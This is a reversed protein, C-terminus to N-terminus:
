LRVRKGVPNNVEDQSSSSDEEADVGTNGTFDYQFSPAVMSPAWSTHAPAAVRLEGEPISGMNMELNRRKPAAMDDSDDNTSSEEDNRETVALSKSMTASADNNAAFAATKRTRFAHAVKDRAVNEKVEIWGAGEQKLFRGGYEAVTDLIQQSIKMKHFKKAREYANQYHDLLAHYRINGVHESRSM